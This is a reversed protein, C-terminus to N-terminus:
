KTSENSHSWWLRKVFIIRKLIWFSPCQRSQRDTDPYGSNGWEKERSIYGSGEILTDLDLDPEPKPEIQSQSEVAPSSVNRCEFRRLFHRPVVLIAFWVAKGRRWRKQWRNATLTLSPLMFKRREKKHSKITIKQRKVGNITNSKLLICVHPPTHNCIFTMNPHIITM